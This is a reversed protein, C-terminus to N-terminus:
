RGRCGDIQSVKGIDWVRQYMNPPSRWNRLPARVRQGGSEKHPSEHSSERHPCTSQPHGWDGCRHCQGHSRTKGKGAGKGQPTVRWSGKQGGQKGGQKTGMGYPMGTGKGGSHSGTGLGVSFKGSRGPARKRRRSLWRLLSRESGKGRSGGCRSRGLQLARSRSRM